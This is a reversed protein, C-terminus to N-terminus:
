VGTRHDAIPPDGEQVERVHVLQRDHRLCVGPDHTVGPWGGVKAGGGHGVDEQLRQLRATVADPARHTLPEDKQVVVSSETQGGVLNQLGDHGLVLVVVALGGLHPTM